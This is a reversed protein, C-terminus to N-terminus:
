SAVEYNIGSVSSSGGPLVPGPLDVPQKAIRVRRVFAKFLEDFGTGDLASIEWFLDAGIEDAM